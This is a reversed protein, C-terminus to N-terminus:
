HIEISFQSSTEQDSDTKNSVFLGLNKILGNDIQSAPITLSFINYDRNDSNILEQDDLKWQFNLNGTNKINFFFPIALIKLTKGTTTILTEPISYDNNALKFITQVGSIKIELFGRWVVAEGNLVQAEVSHYDGIWKTAQFSFTSKGQGEARGVAVKDLLWRYTLKEPDISLTKTPLVFVKIQSGKTPLALGEYDPPVYSDSSWVLTFNSDAAQAKNMLEPKPSASFLAIFLASILVIKLYKTFMKINM